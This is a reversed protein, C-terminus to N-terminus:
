KNPMSLNCKKRRKQYIGRKMLMSKKKLPNVGELNRMNELFQVMLM